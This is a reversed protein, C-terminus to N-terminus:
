LELFMQDIAACISEPQSMRGPGSERCSLWGEDPGIFRVQDERLRQVNRQVAPARWMECNMAPALLVPGEFCLYLTSLLDDALGLAAKGMFDATAPAICMLRNERAIEIHAGLPYRADFLQHAVPNGSLAALTSAGIFHNAAETMVVQCRYGQQALNSVVAAVKYAAVGGCIGVIVSKESM